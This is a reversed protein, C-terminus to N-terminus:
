DGAFYLDKIPSEGSLSIPIKMWGLLGFSTKILYLDGKNIVVTVPAGKSLRANIEELKTDSYLEIPKTTVSQVGVFYYEQPIEKLVDGKLVFKKKTDFMNNTHGSIYIYGNGPIYIDTGELVKIKLLTDPLIKYIIFVPDASSGTSYDIFYYDRKNINIQTKVTRIVTDNGEKYRIDATRQNLVASVENNYNVSIKEYSINKDDIKFISLYSFSPPLDAMSDSCAKQNDGVEGAGLSGSIGM